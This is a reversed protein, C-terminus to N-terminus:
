SVRQTVIAEIEKKAQEVGLFDGTISVVQEEEPDEEQGEVRKPISIKTHTRAILDKLTKGGAGVIAPRVSAPVSVKVTTQVCLAQQLQRKAAKVEAPKGNVIFTLTGTKTATSMEITTNTKLQIGKAVEGVSSKSGLERQKAQHFPYSPRSRCVM